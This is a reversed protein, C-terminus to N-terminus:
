MFRVSYVEADKMRLHLRVPKDSWSSLDGGTWEVTRAIRDGIIERCDDLRFGPIPAGEPTQLEARVFGAASTSYNLEMRRGSFRFPKTTMGGGRYPAYLSSFGDVRLSYRM